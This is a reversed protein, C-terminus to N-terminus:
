LYLRNAGKFFGHLVLRACFLQKACCLMRQAYFAHNELTKDLISIIMDCRM